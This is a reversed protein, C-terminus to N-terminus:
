DKERGGQEALCRFATHETGGEILGTGREDPGL